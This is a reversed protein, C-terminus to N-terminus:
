APSPAPPLRDILAAVERGALVCDEMANYTWAGYRGRPYIANAELFAFIEHTAEYYNQDFVVYAYDIHKPEAFVVDGADTLAGAAVLAETTDRVTEDSIPGRHAMEVCISACGEPAMSAAAASFVNVRYFPYRREPVYIWHWDAPSPRRVGINLYSLTTCRLRAAQAEIEPPLERMRKLLEPLPLTAVLARYALREGGVSVERRRWDIADPDSRTHVQGGAGAAGIRTQLARTFTEIGGAKPYLFTQNYGLEPPGAGVAGAVVQELNPLPVFRSCWAATIERPHVGWIKENYPIMFHKSIGAGFHRLCYQEFDHPEAADRENTDPSLSSQEGSGMVPPESGKRPNRLLDDAARKAEIMGLLCEKIVEPPLGFLNAQYPYRTLVGHSFIRAKRAISVMQGPLLEDVLRKVEPDRLHLWHGTKDFRYGERADTRAHGGLREEREFLVFPARLHVATSIGTLGGGLIVVPAPDNAV